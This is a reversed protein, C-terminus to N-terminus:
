GAIKTTIFDNIVGFMVGAFVFLIELTQGFLGFELSVIAGIIAGRLISNTTKSGKILELDGALGIIIGMIVRNYWAAALYSVDNFVYTPIRQSVGLICFIGLIMGMVIGVILRKTNMCKMLNSNKLFSNLIYYLRIAMSFESKEINGNVNAKNLKIEFYNHHSCYIKRIKVGM